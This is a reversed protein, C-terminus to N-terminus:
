SGIAFGRVDTLSSLNTGNPVEDAAARSNAQIGTIGTRDTSTTKSIAVNNNDSEIGIAVTGSVGGKVTITHTHAALPYRAIVKANTHDYEFSLGSADEFDIFDIAKLGLKSAPLSMGGTPYSSDFALKFTHLRKNGIVTMDLITVTLAM